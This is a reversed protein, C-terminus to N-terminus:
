SAGPEDKKEIGRGCEERGEEEEKGEGGLPLRGFVDM